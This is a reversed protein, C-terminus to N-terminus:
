FSKTKGFIVSAWWIFPIIKRELRAEDGFYRGLHVDSVVGIRLAPLSKEHSFQLAYNQVTLSRPELWFAWAALVGASFILVGTLLKFAFKKGLNIM